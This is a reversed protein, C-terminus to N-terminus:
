LGKQSGDKSQPTTEGIVLVQDDKKLDLQLARIVGIDLGICASTAGATTFNKTTTRRAHLAIGRERLFVKEGNKDYYFQQLHMAYPMPAGGGKKGDPSYESSKYEQNYNGYQDIKDTNRSKVEYFGLPTEQGVRGTGVQFQAPKGNVIFKTGDPNYLCATQWINSVVLTRKDFKFNLREPFIGFNANERYIVEGPNPRVYVRNTKEISPIETQRIKEGIVDVYVEVKNKEGRNLPTSTPLLVSGAYLVKELFGRRTIKKGPVKENM